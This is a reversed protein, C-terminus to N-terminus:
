WWPLVLAGSSLCRRTTWTSYVTPVTPSLFPRISVETGSIGLNAPGVCASTWLTSLPKRLQDDSWTSHFWQKFLNLTRNAGVHGSYEHTWKRVAPIRDSPVVRRDERWLYTKHRKWQDQNVVAPELRKELRKYIDGSEELYEVQQFGDLPRIMTMNPDLHVNIRSFAEKALEESRAGIMNDFNNPSIYDACENKLRQIHHVSLRLQSLYTWWRRLKAKEPPPGKQFTCVPEQDCLWVM